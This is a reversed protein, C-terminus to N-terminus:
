GSPWNNNPNLETKYFFFPSNSFFNGAPSHPREPANTPAKTTLAQLLDGSTPLKTLPTTNAPAAKTPTSSPSSDM